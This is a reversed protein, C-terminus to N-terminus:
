YKRREPQYKFANAAKRVLEIATKNEAIEDDLYICDIKNEIAKLVNDHMIKAQKKQEENGSALINAVGNIDRISVKIKM